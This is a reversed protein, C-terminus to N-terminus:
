ALRRTRELYQRIKDALEPRQAYKLLIDDIDKTIDTAKKFDRVDKRIDSEAAFEEYAEDIYIRLTKASALGMDERAMKLISEYSIVAHKLEVPDQLQQSLVHLYSKVLNTVFRHRMMHMCAREELGAIAVLNRFEKSLTEHRIPTGRRKDLFLAGTERAVRSNSRLVQPRDYLIFSIIHEADSLSVDVTRTGTVGRKKALWPLIIKPNPGGLSDLLAEVRLRGIEERRGGLIELLRLMVSRRKQIYECGTSFAAERLRELSSTDIPRRRKLPGKGPFSSHNFHRIEFERESKRCRATPGKAPSGLIQGDIGILNGLGYLRGCFDIFSLTTTGIARVGPLQRANTEDNEPTREEVLQDVFETFEDNSIETFPIKHEFCFRLFHNLHGAYTLVSGDPRDALARRKKHLRELYLNAELCWSGDPWSMVPFRPAPFTVIGNEASFYSVLTFGESARKYM